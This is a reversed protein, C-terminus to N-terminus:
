ADKTTHSGPLLRIEYRARRREVETHTDEFTEWNDHKNPGDSVWETERPHYITDLM